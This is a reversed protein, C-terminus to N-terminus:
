NMGSALEDYMNTLAQQRLMDFGYDKFQEPKMEGITAKGKGEKMAKEVIAQLQDFYDIQTALGSKDTIEGHGPIVITKDDCLAIANRMAERWGVTNAGAPRDIFPHSKNFFLDGKHLINADPMFVVTDNDTHGNGFHHLTFKTEGRPLDLTQDYERDAKIDDVTLKDAWAAMEAAEKEKGATRLSNIETALAPKFMEDLNAQMRPNLNRHAVIEAADDFAFNGGSHDFHHHTNIVISPQKGAYKKVETALLQAAGSIKTDVLV